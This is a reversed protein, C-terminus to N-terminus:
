FPPIQPIGVDLKWSWFEIRNPHDCDTSEKFYSHPFEFKLSYRYRTVIIVIRLVGDNTILECFLQFKPGIKWRRTRSQSQVWELYGDDHDFTLKEGFTYVRDTKVTIRM